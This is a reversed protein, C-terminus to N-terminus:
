KNSKCHRKGGLHQVKKTEPKENMSQVRWALIGLYLEFSLKWRCDLSVTIRKRNKM